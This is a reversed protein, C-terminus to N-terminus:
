RVMVALTDHHNAILTRLYSGIRDAGEFGAAVAARAQEDESVPTPEAFHQLDRYAGLTFLDWSAGGARTFILNQPRHIAGLFQNEMRRQELLEARKGPLAVFMEVHLFGAGELVGHVVASEPGSVLLEERWAVLGDAPQSLGDVSGAVSYSTSEGLSVLLMLDWQDGQSHRFLYPRESGEAEHVAIERKYVEILELLRGPAARILLVRYLASDATTERAPALEPAPTASASTSVAAAVAFILHRILGTAETRPVKEQPRRSREGREAM